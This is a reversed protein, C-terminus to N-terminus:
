MLLGYQQLQVLIYTLHFQAFLQWLWSPQQQQQPLSVELTAWASEMGHIDRAKARVSFTGKEDWVWPITINEGSSFIGDVWFGKGGEFEIFFQVSENEPDITSLNYSYEINPNGQTPGALIPKEPPRSVYFDISPDGFLNLEYFTWRICSRDILFINDEKSDQNAKSITVINEGFVADWFERTFRTGDGDTSYSWFWGYRANMIASFADHESKVTLYEAFCDYGDPDDFGGAMCGVSYDFFPYKNTFKSVDSNGMKMNYGYNSHGDHNLIHIGENVRNILEIAPWDNSPYDRDYLTDIDFRSLPIGITEYGDVHSENILLDLYNGGWSAVGFDGLYEGAFLVKSLIQNTPDMSLYSISKNVFHGVEEISGACARGIFVEAILDVDGGHEGDTPEGWLDDGDGNFSGDLCGFYFDAPLKTEYYQTGEDLGSVWLMRAPIIDADGGLLVYEIGHQLYEDTIFSRITEPNINGPNISVDQLTKIETRLGRQGHAEKLPIFGDAFENTTLILLDYAETIEIPNPSYWHDAMWANDIKSSIYEQDVPMGRYLHSQTMTTEVTVTLKMEPYYWLVNGIPNYQVPNLRFVAIKYGRAMYEGIQTFLTTPYLEDSTYIVPNPEPIFPSQNSSLPVPTSGPLVVNNLILHKQETIEITVGTIIADAPLLIFAGKVPLCPEGPNSFSSLKEMIIQDFVSDEIQCEVIHPEPFSYSTSISQIIADDDTTDDPDTAYVTPFVFLVIMIFPFFKTVYQHQM